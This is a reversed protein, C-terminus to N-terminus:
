VYLYLSVSVEIGLNMRNDLSTKFPWSNIILVQAIVSLILFAIIQANYNERLQVLIVNTLTWRMLTIPQWYRGISSALNKGEVTVGYKDEFEKNELCDKNYKRIVYVEFAYGIPLATLIGISFCSSTISIPTEYNLEKINIISAIM